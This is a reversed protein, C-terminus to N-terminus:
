TPWHKSRFRESGTIHSTKNDGITNKYCGVQWSTDSHLGTIQMRYITRRPRPAQREQPGFDDKRRPGRAFQVTLREGKLESGDTNFYHSSSAVLLHILIVYSFSRSINAHISPPKPNLYKGPVVDRADMMDEYEIFGFGNMLKIEKITGAGHTSFHEEVEQKTVPFISLYTLSGALGLHYACGEM